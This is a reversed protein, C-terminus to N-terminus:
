IWPLLCMTASASDCNDLLPLWFVVCSKLQMISVISSIYTMSLSGSPVNGIYKYLYVHKLPIM